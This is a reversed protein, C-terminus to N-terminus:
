TQIQGLLVSQSNDAVKWLDMKLKLVWASLGRKLYWLRCLQRSHHKESKKRM